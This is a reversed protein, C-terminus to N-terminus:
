YIRFKKLKESYDNHQYSKSLHPTARGKQVLKVEIAEMRYGFASTGAKEGNKTWGLWGFAEVHTRYYVDYYKQLDGTLRIQIAEIQLNRGTTGSLAGNAVFGQWGINKIHSNYQISGKLDSNPITFKLGELQLRRGTTGAIKGSNDVPQWGISSVHAQTSLKPAKLAPKSTSGPATSGKVVLKIRIAQINFSFGTTGAIQDNKAWDLWGFNESHVQYYVDFKKALEGTLKIQVAELQM